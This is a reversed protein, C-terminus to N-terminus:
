WGFGKMELKILYRMAVQTQDYILYENHLFSSNIGTNYDRGQPIIVPHGSSSLNKDVIDDNPNPMVTGEALVSNCGNPAKTLSPNDRQIRHMKGLTVENLLVLGINGHLGLYQSSKAIMDAFYLGRGVRGGAHPMIKLGGSLIAVFVAVKSGHWLLKRYEINNWQSFLEDEGERKLKFIDLIEIHKGQKTNNWYKEIYKWEDSNKDVPEIRNKLQHYQQTIIDVGFTHGQEELMRAAVEIDGLMAVLDYKEQLLKKNDIIPPRESGFDQPIITYFRNSADTLFVISPTQKGLEEEIEELVKTGKTLQTKSLKGLPMKKLDIKAEKMQEKFMNTDFLLKVLEQVRPDLSCKIGKTLIEKARKLKEDTIEKEEDEAELEVPYFKGPKKEFTDTMFADWTNRTKEYFLKKFEEIADEKNDYEYETHTGEQGVRGWKRFLTYKKRNPAEIVQMSYYSNLGTQGHTVDTMNLVIAFVDGNEVVISGNNLVSKEDIKPIALKKRTKPVLSEVEENADKEKSEVAKGDKWLLYENLSNLNGAKLSKTIFGSSVIPIGWKIANTIKAPPKSKSVEDYTSVVHTVKKTVSTQVTGKRSEISEQMREKSPLDGVFAFICGKFLESSSVTSESENPVEKEKKKENKIEEKLKEIEEESPYKWKQRNTIAAPDTTYNCKSWASLYGTCKIKGSDYVLHGKECQPCRPLAGNEEGDAIRAILEDQGGHYSQENFKLIAKLDNLNHEKKLRDKIKWIREAKEKEAEIKQRKSSSDKDDADSGNRKKSKKEIEEKLFKEVTKHDGATLLELGSVESVDRLSSPVDFCNLHYWNVGRYGRGEDIYQEGLRLEKQAINKGCGRCRSRGSKAYEVVFTNGEDTDNDDDNDNDSDGAIWSKLKQQDDWRLDTAGKIDTIDKVLSPYKDFFCTPHHWVYIEVDFNQARELKGIRLSDKEITSSCSKCTSRNSKAYEVKFDPKLEKEAM